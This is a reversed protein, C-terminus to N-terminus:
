AQKVGWFRNHHPLAQKLAGSVTKVDETGTRAGTKIDRAGTIADGTVGLCNTPRWFM